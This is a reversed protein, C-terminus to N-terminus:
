GHPNGNVAELAAKVARWRIYREAAEVDDMGVRELAVDQMPADCVYMPVRTRDRVALVFKGQDVNVVRWCNAEDEFAELAAWTVDDNM